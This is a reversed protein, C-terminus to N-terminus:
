LSMDFSTYFKGLFQISSLIRLLMDQNTMKENKLNSPMMEPLDRNPIEPHIDDKAKKHLGSPQHKAFVKKSELARKWNRFSTVTFAPEVWESMDHTELYKCCYFFFAADKEVSYYLWPYRRYWDLQFALPSPDTEKYKSKPYQCHKPQNPEFVKRFLTM